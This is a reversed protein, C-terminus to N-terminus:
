VNYIAIIMSFNDKAEEKLQEEVKNIAEMITASSIFYHQFGMGHIVDHVGDSCVIFTDDEVLDDIIKTEILSNKIDGQVSRTVVHRYRQLRDTDAYSGNNKIENMLSHSQSEFLLKGNRFHYVKVDGVWFCIAINNSIVVGGITAGADAKKEQKLQKIALNSKNIAKQLQDPNIESITSLYALVNEAALKAALEGHDYGGMGDSVILLLSDPNINQVLVYDQNIDRQGKNTIIIPNM